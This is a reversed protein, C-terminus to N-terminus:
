GGLAAIMEAKTMSSNVEVGRRDAEAQLEAKTM